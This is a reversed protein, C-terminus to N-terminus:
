PRGDELLSRVLTTFAETSFPKSLVATAGALMAAQRSAGSTFGSVVIVPPPRPLARAARVVDLGDGDSLVLDAILLDPTGAEIAALGAARSPAAITLYGHRRLLREYTAIMDLEDEVVLV